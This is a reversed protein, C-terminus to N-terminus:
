IQAPPTLSTPSGQPTCLLGALGQLHSSHPLAPLKLWSPLVVRAQHAHRVQHVRLVALLQQDVQCKSAAIRHGLVHLVAHWPWSAASEKPLPQPGPSAARLVPSLQQQSGHALQVERLRVALQAPAGPQWHPATQCSCLKLLGQCRKASSRAPHWPRLQQASLLCETQQSQHACCRSNQVPASTQAPRCDLTCCLTSANQMANVSLPHQLLDPQEQGQQRCQHQSSLPPCM